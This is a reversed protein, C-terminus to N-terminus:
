EVTRKGVQRGIERESQDRAENMDNPEAAAAVVKSKSRAAFGPTSIVSTRSDQDVVPSISAKKAKTNLIPTENERPVKRISIAAAGTARSPCRFNALNRTSRAMERPTIPRRLVTGTPSSFSIAESPGRSRRSKKTGALNISKYEASMVVRHKLLGAVHGREVLDGIEDALVIRRFNQQRNGPAIRGPDVENAFLDFHRGIEALSSGSM